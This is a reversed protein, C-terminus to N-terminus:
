LGRLASLFFGPKTLVQRKSSSSVARQFFIFVVVVFLREATQAM